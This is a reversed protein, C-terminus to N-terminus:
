QSTKDMLEDLKPDHTSAYMSAVAEFLKYFDGDHFPPGEHSGTDLGAAIEFNRYAHSIKPDTYVRWLNPIMTDRCVKFRDAWFGNTWTVNGMDLSSLQAYPSKTTNVLAKNQAYSIKGVLTLCMIVVACKWINKMNSIKIRRLMDWKYQM